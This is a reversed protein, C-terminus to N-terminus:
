DALRFAFETVLDDGDPSASAESLTFALRGGWADGEDVPEVDWVLNREAAWAFIAGIVGIHTEPGGRHTYTVYRGAPVVDGFMEGEVRVDVDVPVGAEIELRRFMDIVRYRVFPPGAPAVGEAALHALLEPIRREVTGITELTVVGALGLYPRAPRYEVSPEVSPELPKDSQSSTM